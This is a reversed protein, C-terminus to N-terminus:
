CGATETNLAISTADIWVRGTGACPEVEYRLQGYSMKADTIRVFVSCDGRFLVAGIKGIDRTMETVTM